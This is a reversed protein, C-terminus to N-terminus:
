EPCSFSSSKARSHASAMLTTGDMTAIIAQAKEKEDRLAEEYLLPFSSADSGSVRSFFELVKMKTTEAHARPGWPFKYRPPDSNSVQCCELYKEQVLDRAILKRPEGYIFDKWGAYVRIINLVEWIKEESACNAEMLIVGFILILLGTKPMGQDDSLRRDYTLDLSKLLVCSHSIPDVEKMDTGFVIEMCEHAQMFIPPFHDKHEKIVGKLMEAETIPQKTTYKVSLFKVLEDVKKELMSGLLSEPERLAQSAGPDKKEQSRSSEGSQNWPTAKITTCPSCVRQSSQPTGPTGSASVKELTGQILTSSSSSATTNVKEAEAVQVGVLGQAEKPAQLGQELECHRSKQSHPM